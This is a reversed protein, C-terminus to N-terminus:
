APSTSVYNLAEDKFLESVAHHIQWPAIIECDPHEVLWQRAEVPTHFVQTDSFCYVGDAKPLAIVCAGAQGYAVGYRDIEFQFAAQSFMSYLRVRTNVRLICAALVAHLPSCVSLQAGTDFEVTHPTRNLGLGYARLSGLELNSEGRSAALLTESFQRREKETRPLLQRLCASLEPTTM